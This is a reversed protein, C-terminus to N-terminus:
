IMGLIITPMIGLKRAFLMLRSRAGDLIVVM